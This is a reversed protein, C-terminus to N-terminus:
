IEIYSFLLFNWQIEKTIKLEQFANFDEEEEELPNVNSTIFESRVAVKGARPIILSLSRYVKVLVLQYSLFIKIFYSLTCGNCM